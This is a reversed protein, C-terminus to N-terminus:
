WGFNLLESVADYVLIIWCWRALIKECGSVSAESDKMEM